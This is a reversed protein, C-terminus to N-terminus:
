LVITGTLADEGLYITEVFHRGSVGIGYLCPEVIGVVSPLNGRNGDTHKAVMTIVHPLIHRSFGNWM